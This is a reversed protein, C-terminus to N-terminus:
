AACFRHPPGHPLKLGGECGTGILGVIVLAGLLKLLEVVRRM